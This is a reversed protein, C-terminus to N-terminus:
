VGTYEQAKRCLDLVRDCIERTDPFTDALAEIEFAIKGIHRKMITKDFGKPKAKPKGNATRIVEAQSIKGARAREKIEDPLKDLARVYESARKVASESVGYTHAAKKRSTPPTQIQSYEDLEYAIEGDTTLEDSDINIPEDRIHGNQGLQPNGVAKKIDEYYQGILEAQENPTLNRRTNTRHVFEVADERNGFFVRESYPINLETCARYRNWGDLIAGEYLVIPDGNFGFHRLSDLLACYDSERM